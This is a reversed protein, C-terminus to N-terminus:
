GSRASMTTTMTTTTTAQTFQIEVTHPAHFHRDTIAMTVLTVIVIPVTANRTESSSFFM